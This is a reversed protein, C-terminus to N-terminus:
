FPYRPVLPLLLGAGRKTATWPPLIRSVLRGQVAKRQQAITVNCCMLFCCVSFLFYFISQCVKTVVIPAMLPTIVIMNANYLIGKMKVTCFGSIRNLVKLVWECCTQIQRSNLMAEMHRFGIVSVCRLAGLPIFSALVLFMPAFRWLGSTEVDPRDSSQAREKGSYEPLPFDFAVLSIKKAAKSLSSLSVSKKSSFSRLDRLNVKVEPQLRLVILTFIDQVFSRNIM